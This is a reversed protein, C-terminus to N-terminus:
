TTASRYLVARFSPVNNNERDSARTHTHVRKIHLTYTTTRNQPSVNLTRPFSKVLANTKEGLVRFSRAHTVTFAFRSALFIFRSHILYFGCLFRSKFDYILSTRNNFSWFDFCSVRLFVNKNHVVYVWKFLMCIAYYICRYSKRREYSM